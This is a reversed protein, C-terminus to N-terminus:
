LIEPGDPTRLWWIFNNDPITTGSADIVNKAELTDSLPADGSQPAASIQGQISFTKTNQLFADIANQLNGRDIDERHLDYSAIATKIKDYLQQNIYDDSRDPLHDYAADVLISLDRTIDPSYDGDIRTKFALIKNSYTTFDIDRIETEAYAHPIWVDVVKKNNLLYFITSVIWWAFWIIAIGAIVSVIIKKTKESSEENSPFLLMQAGAWMIYVVAIISIFTLFYKIIDQVATSIGKGTIVGTQKGIVSGAADVGAKFCNGGSCSFSWSQAFTSFCFATCFLLLIILFAKKMLEIVKM